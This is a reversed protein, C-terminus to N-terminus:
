GKFRARPDLWGYVLDTFFYVFVVMVGFIVTSSQVVIYDRKLVADMLLSGMGPIAFVNEVVLAGGVLGGVQIGLISIGSISGNRLAYNLNVRRPSLGKAIAFKVYESQLSESLSTTLSRILLPCITLAVAISPLVLFHLHDGFTEGYGGVPFFGANLALSILLLIGILFTPMGQVIANFVKILLSPLPNQSTAMWLSLPLSIVVAFITSMMMLLLTAPLRNQMLDVVPVQYLYSTGLNGTVLQGLFSVYQLIVPRDLGWEHRLADVAEASAKEGLAASAPDGPSLKMLFFTLTAVALVVPIMM